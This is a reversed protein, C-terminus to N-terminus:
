DELSAQVAVPLASLLDYGTAAEIQSVTVRYSRWDPDISQQNPMDVAIVPTNNRISNLGAGPRDLVVIVKWVRRPATIRNDNIQRSRGYAGAIIYLEHGDYVLDRSYEELERWPGRNNDPTQPMINTMVFTASNDTVTATRDGSPTLHGRDYGSSTYDGPRVQYWGDPLTTDPRFDDQRDISGLWQRNLQWSVWNAVAKSRNYSLAYQPRELLYNDPQSANARSPNGLLLHVSSSPPPAAAPIVGVFSPLQECAQGNSDQDLGHRDGREAELVYQALEQYDFDSCDCNGSTCPPLAVSPGLNVDCSATIGLLLIAAGLALFKFFRLM